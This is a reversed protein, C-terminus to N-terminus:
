CTLRQTYDGLMEIFLEEEPRFSEVFRVAYRVRIGEYYMLAYYLYYLEHNVRLFKMTRAVEAPSVEYVRVTLKYQRSPVVEMIWGYTELPIKRRFYLYQFTIDLSM